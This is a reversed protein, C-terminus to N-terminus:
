HSVKKQTASRDERRPTKTVQTRIEANGACQYLLLLTLKSSTILHFAHYYSYKGILLYSFLVIPRIYHTAAQGLSVELKHAEELVHEVDVHLGLHCPLVSHRQVVVVVRQPRTTIKDMNEGCTQECCNLKM